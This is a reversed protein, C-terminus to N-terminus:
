SFIVFLFSSFIEEKKAVVVFRGDKTHYSCTSLTMLQDGYKASKGTDYLSANKASQIYSNFEEENKADIFYYYRFVNKESKYYVRSRFVSIIDYNADENVTTFRISPHEYFFSKNEYKLLHQFMTNNKMNHGYILLNSNPPEWNYNKDLFIAGNISNQKKYNHNMYFSNDNGQLVPYNIDTNEIEIWGIIDPNEKKLEEIKLMRETKLPTPQPSNNIEIHQDINKPQEQFSNSKEIIIKDLLNSQNKTKYIDYCYYVIYSFSLVIFISLLIKLLKKM